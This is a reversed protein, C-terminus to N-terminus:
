APGSLWGGEPPQTNFGDKGMNFKADPRGAAKPRSHTSVGSRDFPQQPFLVLRRRAATHQFSTPKMSVCICCSWGGEPPQTNFCRKHIRVARHRPGAAKPRSHTSVRYDDLTYAAAAGAAKPRSHTSVIFRLVPASPHSGAAKPRSHTSVKNKDASSGLM